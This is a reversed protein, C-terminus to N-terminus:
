SASYRGTLRDLTRADSELDRVVELEEAEARRREARGAARSVERFTLADAITGLRDGLERLRRRTDETELVAPPVLALREFSELCAMFRAHIDGLTPQDTWTERM